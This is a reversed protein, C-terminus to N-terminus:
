NSCISTAEGNGATSDGSGSINLITLVLGNVVNGNIGNGVRV